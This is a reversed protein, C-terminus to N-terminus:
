RYLRYLGGQPEDSLLLISGDPAIEVDRIRGIQRDLFVEEEAPLDNALKVHYLRRLKLSAVLLDGNLEAFMEGDYFAMGSPAISPDLALGILM